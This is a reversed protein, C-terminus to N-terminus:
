EVIGCSTCMEKNMVKVATDEINWFRLICRMEKKLADLLPPLWEKKHAKFVLVFQYKAEKLDTSQLNGRIELDPHRLLMVNYFLLSDSFKKKIEDIFQHFREISKDYRPSSSKAELLLIKNDRKVICECAKMQVSVLFKSKEIRYIDEEPFSFMMGSEEFKDMM